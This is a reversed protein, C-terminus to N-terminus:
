LGKTVASVIGDADLSNPQSMDFGYSVASPVVVLAVVAETAGAVNAYVAGNIAALANVEIAINVDHWLWGDARNPSKGTVQHATLFKKLDDNLREMGAQAQFPDNIQVAVTIKDHFEPDTAMLEKTFEAIQALTVQNTQENRHARIEAALDPHEDAAKGKAFVLLGVIDEDSYKVHHEGDAASATVATRAHSPAAAVAVAGTGLVAVLAAASSILATTRKLRM